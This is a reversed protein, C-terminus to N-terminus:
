KPEKDAIAEEDAIAEILYTGSKGAVALDTRGDGNLDEAVIQLGVGVHGEEIVFRRFTRTAIDWQYYYLCPMEMGGPDKGNHAFYRKGAILDPQDDCNIDRWALTHPQSYSTDIEHRNWEMPEGGLNEWWYLGYDHGNGLILDADGDEDLDVVIMPLSSHLDWDKHFTWPQGWPNEAPQEYWGQGMLVDTRGDSNLDGVALGHGNGKPGLEHGVLKYKAGSKQLDSSAEKPKSEAADVPPPDIIPELRWVMAPVDKQWSNVIWEPRGDGDVDEFLQGENSKYQTDVWVHRQWLKGLRLAEEGPNEYWALETELFTGSIVDVRGDQNVDFLYDGNSEVYGNSDKIQRLPRPAWDGGRYWHRGSVLDMVGDGDIDGAAIGENADVTLLRIKFKPEPSCPKVPKEANEAVPVAPTQGLATSTPAMAMMALCFFSTFCYKM